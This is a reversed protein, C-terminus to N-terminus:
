RRDAAAFLLAVLAVFPLTWFVAGYSWASAVAGLAIAGLGVGADIGINWLLSALAFRTPGARSFLATQLATQLVGLGTGFLLGAPILAAASRDGALAFLAALLLAFGPLVLRRAGVRDAIRGSVWRSVFGSSGACLLLVAASGAGHEPLAASAFTIIGGWAVTVTTLAAFPLLLSRERLARRLRGDEAHLPPRAALGAPLLAGVAAAAGALAFVAGRGVSSFLWLGLAPGFVNPVGVALGSLGLAEGRRKAPALQAVLAFAVVSALGFGVGRFATTVIVVPWGPLAVVIFAPIGLLAMAAAMLVRPDVRRLLPPIALQAAVTLGFFLANVLGAQSGSGGGREVVLPALPLLLAVNLFMAALLGLVLV